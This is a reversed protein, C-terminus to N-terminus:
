GPHEAHQAAMLFGGNGIIRRRDLIQVQQVVDALDVVADCRWRVIVERPMLLPAPHVVVRASRGQRLPNVTEVRKRAAEDEWTVAVIVKYAIGLLTLMTEIPISGSAVAGFIKLM